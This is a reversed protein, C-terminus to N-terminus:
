GSAADNLRIQLEAEQQRMLEALNAIQSSTLKTAASQLRSGAQPRCLTIGGAAM